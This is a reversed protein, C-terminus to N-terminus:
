PIDDKAAARERVLELEHTLSDKVLAVLHANESQVCAGTGADLEGTLVRRGDVILRVQGRAKRRVLVVVGELEWSRNALITLRVRRRAADRLCSALQDLDEAAASLYARDSAADLLIRMRDLVAERGAISLFPSTAARRLPALRLMAELSTQARRRLLAALEAPPLAAYRTSDGEVRDAAGKEVLSALAHYANSRSIGTEKAAEYGNLDGRELLAEYLAAEQSTFGLTELTTTFTM